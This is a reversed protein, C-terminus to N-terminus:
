VISIDCPRPFRKLPSGDAKFVDLEFIQRNQDLNIAISVPLGDADAFTAARIQRGFRPKDATPQAFRLSGMGGDRMEQVVADDISHLLLPADPLGRVMEAILSKEEDRLRRMM